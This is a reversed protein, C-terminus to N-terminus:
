KRSTTAVAFGDRDYVNIQNIGTSNNLTNLLNDAFIKADNFDYVYNNLQIELIENEIRAKNIYDENELEIIFNKHAERLINQRNLENQVMNQFHIEAIKKNSKRREEDLAERKENEKIGVVIFYLILLIVIIVITLM